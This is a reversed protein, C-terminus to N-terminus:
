KEAKPKTKNDKTVDKKEGMEKNQKMAQAHIEAVKIDKSSKVFMDVLQIIQKQREGKTETMLKILEVAGDKKDKQVKHIQEMVKLSLNLMDREKTDDLKAQDGAAKLHDKEQQNAIKRSGLIMDLKMKMMEREHRQDLEQKKLEFEQMASESEAKQQNQIYEIWGIKETAPLNTKSVIVAPDVPFGNKQMETYVALEMMNSTMSAQESEGDIDFDLSRLDRINCMLGTKEDTITGNEDAKFREHQGLINVIQSMPMHETIIALQRRFLGRRMRDYAKFVTKLITMGQQQRLQVVIGPEQRKDNQGMLDPNIGTIRRVIEQAFQEMQMIAAPFSPITREMFRKKEIANDQLWTISGPEKVSQEAQDKNVFAQIEAYLGPQVQQALLNLTQSVRKNIERQADKMLEVIGFHNSKRRSVDGYLFCPVISFGPYNIPSKGHFLIEDGGFQIWWVEKTTRTEYELTVEPFSLKFDKKFIKWPKDVIEWQKTQPNRFWYKKVNKWYEMHAVRLQRKKTDYFDTDLPNDYDDVDDIDGGSQPWGTNEPSLRQISEMIPWTGTAFAEKVKNELKPYKIIFDEISLWKDWVIYSADSMDEKRSAPDRRVEHIPINSETISIQNYRNPNVEFDIATWGRGCIAASEFSIDEEDTWDNKEYLLAIINNLVECKFADDESVPTCVFRNRQDENIGMILDIHAKIINFTLHPRKVSELIDKEEKTWQDNDRFDFCEKASTQWEGDASIAEEFLEHVTKLLTKKSLTELM